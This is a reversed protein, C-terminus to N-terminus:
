IHILSLAWNQYNPDNLYFINVNEYAVGDIEVSYMQDAVFCIEGDIDTIIGSCSLDAFFTNNELNSDTEDTVDTQDTAETEDNEQYSDESAALSEASQEQQWPQWIMLIVAAVVAVLAIIVFPWVNVNKTKRAYKGNKM